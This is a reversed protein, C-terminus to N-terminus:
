AGKSDAGRGFLFYAIPVAGASNVFLVAAAWKARSGRIASAPRRKIDVLALLKLIGEVTAAVIIMRRTGESLDQWRKKPM